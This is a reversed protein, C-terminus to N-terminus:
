IIDVEDEPDPKGESECCDIEILKVVKEPTLAEFRQFLEDGAHRPDNVYNEMFFNQVEQPPTSRLWKKVKKTATAESPANTRLYATLYLTIPVQIYIGYTSDLGITKAMEAEATTLAKPRASQKSM